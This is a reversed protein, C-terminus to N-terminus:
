GLDHFTVGYARSERILSILPGMLGEYYEKFEAFNDIVVLVAPLRKEPHAVNYSDLNNARAESFLVQRYDIIDNIKRLSRLVREEEESTIVAGVHPLDSLVTLARGGFDLIYIHLEDPSHTLALGTVVTRLFTTKGRGSAGFIVAHGNTFDIKLPRQSAQYPNDIIGVLPRMATKGWAIGEWTFDDNWFTTAKENLSLGAVLESDTTRLLDIDADNM